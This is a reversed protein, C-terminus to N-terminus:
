DHRDMYLFETVEKNPAWLNSHESRQAGQFLLSSNELEKLTTSPKELVPKQLLVLSQVRVGQM